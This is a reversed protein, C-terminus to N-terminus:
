PTSATNYAARPRFHYVSIPVLLTKTVLSQKTVLEDGLEAQRSQTDGMTGVRSASSRM